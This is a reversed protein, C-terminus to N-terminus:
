RKSQWSDVGLLWKNAQLKWSTLDLTRFVRMNKLNGDQIADLDMSGFKITATEPSGGYFAVVGRNIVGQM